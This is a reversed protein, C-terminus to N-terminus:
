NIGKRKNRIKDKARQNTKIQKREREAEREGANSKKVLTGFGLTSGIMDYVMNPNERDFKLISTPMYENWMYSAEGKFRDLGGANFQATKIKPRGYHRDYINYGSLLIMLDGIAALIPNTNTGVTGIARATETGLGYSKPTENYMSELMAKFIMASVRSNEAYPLRIFVCQGDETEGIPLCQYNFRNYHTIKGYMKKTWKLYKVIEDDDDLGLAKLAALMAGSSLAWTLATSLGTTAMWRAAFAKPNAKATELTSSWGQIAANSFVFLTNTVFTQTGRTAFDPSGIHKVVHYRMESESMGPTLEKMALYGGVKAGRETVAVLRSMYDGLRKLPNMSEPKDALGYRELLRQTETGQRIVDGHGAQSSQFMNLREMEAVVDSGNRFEDGFAEKMGEAWYKTWQLMSPSGKWTMNQYTSLYDRVVNNVFFTPSYTTWGMRFANTLKSFASMVTYMDEDIANRFGMAFADAVDYQAVRGNRLVFMRQFGEPADNYVIRGDVMKGNVTPKQILNPFFKLAMDVTKMRADNWLIGAMIRLDNELTWALPNAASDVTGKLGYIQGLMGGTSAGNKGYLTSIIKRYAYWENAKSHEVLEKTYAGSEEMMKIVTEQRLKWFENHWKELANWKKDGLREHLRDLLLTAEEPTIGNPNLIGRDQDNLSPDNEIRKNQMYLGIDEETVEMGKLPKLLRDAMKMYYDKISAHQATTIASLPTDAFIMQGRMVVQKSARAVDAFKNVFMRQTAKWMEEGSFVAPKDKIAALAGAEGADFGKRQMELLADAYAKEDNMLKMLDQWAKHFDAKSSQYNQIMRWTEPARRMLEDPANLLVSMMEAFLETPKMRYKRYNPDDDFEGSWWRTLDALEERVVSAQFWGEKDCKEQFIRRYEQSVAKRWAQMAAKDDAKPKPNVAEVNLEAQARLAKREKALEERTLQKKPTEGAVTMFYKKLMGGVTGLVNGHSTTNGSDFDVLHGIEHAGVKRVNALTPERRLAKMLVIGKADDRKETIDIESGPVGKGTWFDMWLKRQEAEKGIPVKITRELVEPKALDRLVEIGRTDGRFVGLAKGDAIRPIKDVATVNGKLQKALELMLPLRMARLNEIPTVAAAQLMRREDARAIDTEPGLPTPMALPTLSRKVDGDVAQSDGFRRKLETANVQQRQRETLSFKINNDSNKDFGSSLLAKQAVNLVQASGSSPGGTPLDGNLIDAKKILFVSHDYYKVGNNDHIVMAAIYRENGYRVKAALLHSLSNVNGGQENIHGETQILVANKLMEPIVPVINYKADPGGHNGLSLASAKSIVVDSSLAPVSVSRNLMGSQEMYGVVKQTVWAAFGKEPADSPNFVQNIQECVVGRANNLDSGCTENVREVRYGNKSSTANALTYRGNQNDALMFRIDPNEGDFTGENDTASKVQTSEKVLFTDSPGIKSDSWRHDIINKVIVGDYADDDVADEIDGELESYTLGKGDIVIPNDIKLFCAYTQSSEAKTGENGWDESYEDALGKNNTFWFGNENRIYNKDFVTFGGEETGHYVILPEGNDDIIKSSDSKVFFNDHSISNDDNLASIRRVAAAAEATPSIIPNGVMLSANAGNKISPMKDFRGKKTKEFFSKHLVIKGREGQDFSVVVIGTPKVQKIFLISPNRGPNRNDLKVDDATDIINQINDYSMISVEPHHNVAHDILYGKGSYVRNDEIGDSLYPLYEVPIHAIAELENGFMEFIENRSKGRAKNINEDSLWEKVTNRMQQEESAAEWDGFWQKFAPTRTQVWQRATLNTPNGNPAKMWQPTNYYRKFVDRFEQTEADLDIGLKGAEFESKNQGDALMFKIGQSDGQAKKAASAIVAKIDNDSWDIDFVKRLTERIKAVFQNFWSPPNEIDAIRALWEETADRRGKETKLDFGYQRTADAVESEHGRFIADLMSGYRKGMLQKLGSHGVVEHSMIRQRIAKPGSPMNEVVIHIVRGNENAAEAARPKGNEDKPLADKLNQPMDDATDYVEFKFNPFLEQAVKVADDIDRRKQVLADDQADKGAQVEEEDASEAGEVQPAHEREENGVFANAAVVDPELRATVMGRIIDAKDQPELDAFLSDGNALRVRDAYERFFNRIGVASKIKNFIRVLDKEIDNIEPTSESHEEFMSTQNFWSNINNAYENAHRKYELYNDLANIIEKGLSYEPNEVDNKVLSASNDMLGKVISLIINEGVNTIVSTLMRERREVPEDRLFYAFMARSVRDTAEKTAKGNEDLLGANGTDTIEMFKLLFDRNGTNLSEGPKYLRMLEPHQELLLSDSLANQSPTMTRTGTHNAKQVEGQLEAVTKGKDQIFVLKPQKIGLEDSSPKGHSKLYGDMVDKLKAATAEDQYALQLAADRHNGFADKLRVGSNGDDVAVVTVAGHDVTPSELIQSPNAKISNVINTVATMSATTDMPRNQLVGDVSRSVETSDAEVVAWYGTPGLTEDAYNRRSPKENIVVVKAESGDSNSVKDGPRYDRSYVKEQASPETKKQKESSQSSNVPRAADEKKASEAPKAADEKKASEAPKSVPQADNAGKGHRLEWKKLKPEFNKMVTDFQAKNGNRIAAELRVIPQRNNHLFSSDSLASYREKLKSYANQLGDVAQGKGADTKSDKESETTIEANVDLKEAPVANDLMKIADRLDQLTEKEDDTLNDKGEFEAIEDQLKKRAGKKSSEIANVIPQMTAADHADAAEKTPTVAPRNGSPATTPTAAPKANDAEPQVSTPPATPEQGSQQVTATEQQTPLANDAEPQVSTPTATPEQGSQQGTVTEQQAQQQANAVKKAPLPLTAKPAQLPQVDTRDGWLDHADYSPLKENDLKLSGEPTYIAWGGNERKVAYDDGIPAKAIYPSLEGLAESRAMEQIFAAQEANDAVCVSSVDAGRGILVLYRKEKGDETPSDFEVVDVAGDERSADAADELLGVAGFRNAAGQIGRILQLGRKSDDTGIKELAQVCAKNSDEDGRLLSQIAVATLKGVQGNRVGYDELVEGPRTFWDQVGGWKSARAGHYAGMLLTSAVGITSEMLRETAWEGVGERGASRWAQRLESDGRWLTKSAEQMWDSFVEELDEEAFSTFGEAGIQLLRKGLGEKVAKITMQEVPRRIEFFRSMIKSAGLGALYEINESTFEIAADTLAQGVSKWYKKSDSVGNKKSWYDMSESFSQGATKVTMPLAWGITPLVKSAVTLAKTGAGAKALVGVAAEGTLAGAMSEAMSLTGQTGIVAIRNLNWGEMAKSSMAYEPSVLLARYADESEKGIRDGSVMRAFGALAADGEIGYRLYTKWIEEWFSLDDPRDARVQRADSLAQLLGQGWENVKQKEEKGLKEYEPSQKWLRIQGALTEQIDRMEDEKGDEDNIAAIVRNEITALPSGGSLLDKIGANARARNERDIREMESARASRENYENIARLREIHRGLEPQEKIVANARQSAMEALRDYTVGSELEKLLSESADDADDTLVSTTDPREMEDYMQEDDQRYEAAANQIWSLLRDYAESM